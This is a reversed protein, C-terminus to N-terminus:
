TILYESINLTYKTVFVELPALSESWKGTFLYNTWNRLQHIRVYFRSELAGISTSDPSFEVAATTLPM